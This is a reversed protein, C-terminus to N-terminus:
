RDRRYELEVEIHTIEGFHHTLTERDTRSAASPALQVHHPRGRSVWLKQESKWVLYADPPIRTVVNPTAIPIEKVEAEADDGEITTGEADIPSPLGNAAPVPAPQAAPPTTVVIIKPAAAATSAVYARMRITVNNGILGGDGGTHTIRGTAFLRGGTKYLTIGVEDLTIHDVTMATARFHFPKVSKGANTPDTAAVAMETAQFVQPSTYPWTNYGYDYKSLSNKTSPLHTKTRARQRSSFLFDGGSCSDLPFASSAILVLAITFCSLRM